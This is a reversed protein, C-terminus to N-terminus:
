YDVEYDDDMDDWDGSMAEDMMWYTTTLRPDFMPLGFWERTWGDFTRMPDAQAKSARSRRSM